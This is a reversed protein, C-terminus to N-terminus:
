LCFQISDGSLVAAVCIPVNLLKDLMIEVMVCPKALLDLLAQFVEVPAFVECVFLYSLSDLPHEARLV